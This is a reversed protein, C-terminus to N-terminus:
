QAGSDLKDLVKRAIDMFIKSVDSEPDVAVVPKGQDASERLSILLPIEGLFDCGLEEATRRVGGEGFIFSKEGTKPSVFYSMNEVMGFVPIKTTRFMNLGKRADILAIEQPTSVIVAGAIPVKQVLTLQADGTGPPMDIVLVDLTGWNVDKSMQSVASMVMLGRWIMPTDEDVMLGMSMVKIGFAEPAQLKSGDSTPTEKLNLMRPVSPGHVDADLLGVKKGLAKLALALNVAVMSKGVGGKGSAVAIIKDVGPIPEISVPSSKATSDAMAQPSVRAPQQGKRDSPLPSMIGARKAAAEGDPETATDSHATLVASVSLIGPIKYLADECAKRLPEKAEGDQPSVEVAFSVHGDKVELGQIMGLSVVDKSQDDDIVQRLAEIVNDKTIAAMALSSAFGIAPNGGSHRPDAAAGYCISQLATEVM